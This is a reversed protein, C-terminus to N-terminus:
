GVPTRFAGSQTGSSFLLRAQWYSAMPQGNADLAPLFRGNAMFGNCIRENKSADLSPRQVTCRTPHGEADVLVLFSNRSGWFGLWDPFLSVLGPVWDVANGDPTARRTMSQHREWDLGWSRLLDDTCAQLATIAARLSGTELRATQTLGTNFEIATIAAAYAQEAARDYIPTGPAPPPTGPSPPDVTGFWVDGLNFYQQGDAMESQLYRASRQDGDPLFRFGLEESTRYTTLANSVLVLRAAASASNRELALAIQQDGNTFVRAIRCEEDAAELQWQGTRTFARTEEQAAAPAMGSGLMAGALALTLTRAFRNGIAAREM